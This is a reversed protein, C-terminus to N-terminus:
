PKESEGGGLGPKLPKPPEQAPVGSPREPAKAPKAKPAAPAPAPAPAPAAAPQRLYAGDIKRNNAGDLITIRGDKIEITWGADLWDVNISRDRTDKQKTLYFLTLSVERQRTKADKVGVQDKFYSNLIEYLSWGKGAEYKKSEPNTVFKLSKGKLDEFASLGSAKPNKLVAEPDSKLRLEALKEYFENRVAERAFGRNKVEKNWDMGRVPKEPSQAM